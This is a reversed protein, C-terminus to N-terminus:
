KTQNNNNTIPNHTHKSTKSPQVAGFGKWGLMFKIEKQFIKNLALNMYFTFVPKIYSFNQVIGFFLNYTVQLVPDTKYWGSILNVDNLIFYIMLPFSSVFYFINYFSVTITFYHEKQAHSSRTITIASSQRMKKIILVNLLTMISLPIVTRTLASLLDTAVFLDVDATCAAGPRPIYFFLNPINVLILLVLILLMHLSMTRKSKFYKAHAQHYYVAVFRDITIYVTVGTSSHNLLRRFFSLLRCSVDSVNFLNYPFLHPSSRLVIFQALILVIDVICQSLYLFGMNTKDKKMIRIFIWAALLNSPLGIATTIYMFYATIQNHLSSLYAVTSATSM